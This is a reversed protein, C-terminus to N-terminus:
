AVVKDNSGLYRVETCVYTRGKKKMIYQVDKKNNKTVEKEKKDESMKLVYSLHTELSHGMAKADEMRDWLTLSKDADRHTSFSHRLINVTVAKGFIKHLMRNSRKTYSNPISYPEGNAKTFLYERPTKRLSEKIIDVHQQALPWKWTKYSKATKYRSIAIFPKKALLDVYTDLGKVKDGEHQIVKIRHYDLQRRPRLMYYFAILMHEDSAYNEKSLKAYMKEVEDWTVFVERQRETPENSAREKIREQLLPSCVESWKEHLKRNNVKEGTYKLVALVSAITTQLTSKSPIGKELLSFTKKPHLISECLSKGTIKTVRKLSYIYSDKTAPKIEDVKQFMEYFDEDTKHGCISKM